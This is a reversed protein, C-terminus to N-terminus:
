QGGGGGDSAGESSSSALMSFGKVLGMASGAAVGGVLVM